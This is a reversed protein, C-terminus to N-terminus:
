PLSPPPLPSTHAHHALTRLLTGPGDLDLRTVAGTGPEPTAPTAPTAAGERVEPLRRGLVALTDVCRYPGLVAPSRRVAPDTLDLDEVLLPRGDRTVHLASRLRGGDEGTRGLVLTERLEAVADGTLEVSTSRTVEAGDAVVFPEGAWTLSGGDGVRIRAHWAAPPGGRQDYAVTGAVDRLDLSCGPGVEVDIEVTDGALLLARAGVLAVRALTAERSLLKPVLLAGSLEVRVGSPSRYLAIRTM